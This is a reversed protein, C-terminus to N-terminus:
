CYKRTLKASINPTIIYRREKPVILNFLDLEGRVEFDVCYVALFFFDVCYKPIIRFSATATDFLCYSERERERVFAMFEFALVFLIMFMM